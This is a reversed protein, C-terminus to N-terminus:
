SGTKTMQMDIAVASLILHSNAHRPCHNIMTATANDDYYAIVACYGVTSFTYVYKAM